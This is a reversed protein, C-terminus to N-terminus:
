NSVAVQQTSVTLARSSPERLGKSPERLDKPLNACARQFTRALGRSPERLGKPLNACRMPITAQARSELVMAPSVMWTHHAFWRLSNRSGDLPAARVKSALHALRGAEGRVCVRRTAPVVVQMANTHHIPLTSM